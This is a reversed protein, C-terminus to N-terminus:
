KAIPVHREFWRAMEVKMEPLYEHGTHRYVVSRFNGAKGYLGYVAALKTELQEIGDTPAGGDEDGSLMLMPRPAVLAYVAETDFHKFIGPVFYYIGHMRLNGHAILETYRTFCAVGVVAQIRDDIAALWWSRTCGMSMGTAVIRERDVEPRSQLYDILCQEDRLMMGWLSRGQWLHLKFMSAEQGAKDELQGAPGKGVRGGSFYADIAAVVYGKALLGGIFQSGKEDTAVSEKSSGHGHLGIVAPAPKSSSKPILLIGPVVMDAGNHFEFRELTYDGKDEKSLVRVKTPDPRPPMEGLCQLVTRRVNSRDVDQWRKLDRPVPWVPIKMARFTDPVEAWPQGQKQGGKAYRPTAREQAVLISAPGLLALCICTAKAFAALSWRRERVFPRDM